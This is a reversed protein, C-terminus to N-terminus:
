AQSNRRINQPKSGNKREIGDGEPNIRRNIKMVSIDFDTL